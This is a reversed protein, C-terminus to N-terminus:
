AIKVPTLLLSAEWLRSTINGVYKAQVLLVQGATLGTMKWTRSGSSWNGGRFSIADDDVAAAAGRKVALWTQSNVEADSRGCLEVMYDGAVPVTIAAAAGTAPLNAYVNSTISDLTQSQQKFWGLPTGGIFHWKSSGTSYKLNWVVVGDPSYRCEQGDFLAGGDTGVTPLASVIPQLMDSKGTSDLLLRDFSTTPTKARLWVEIRGSPSVTKAVLKAAVAGGTLWQMANASELTDDNSGLGLVTPTRAQLAKIDAGIASILLSLRGQLSAM